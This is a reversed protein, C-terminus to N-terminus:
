SSRPNGQERRRSRLLDELSGAYDVHLRRKFLVISPLPDDSAYLRCLISDTFIIMDIADEGIMAHSVIGLDNGHRLLIRNVGDLLQSIEQYDTTQRSLCRFIQAVLLLHSRSLALSILHLNKQEVTLGQQVIASARPLYDTLEPKQELQAQTKLLSPLVFNTFSKRVTHVEKPDRKLLTTLMINQATRVMTIAVLPPPLPQSPDSAPPLSRPFMPGPLMQDSFWLSGSPLLMSDLKAKRLERISIGSVRSTSLAISPLSYAYIRPANPNQIDRTLTKLLGSLHNFILHSFASPLVTQIRLAREFSAISAPVSRLDSLQELIPRAFLGPDDRILELIFPRAVNALEPDTSMTLQLVTPLHAALSAVFVPRRKGSHAGGGSSKRRLLGKNTTDAPAGSLLVSEVAALRDSPVVSLPAMDQTPRRKDEKTTDKDWGLDMLRRRIEPPLTSAFQLKEVEEVRDPVFTPSGIDTPVFSLPPRGSKFPRRHARDTIIPQMLVQYRWSFLKTLRDM